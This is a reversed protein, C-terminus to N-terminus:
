GVLDWVVTRNAFHAQEIDFLTVTAGTDRDIVTHSGGGNNVIRYDARDGSFRAVDTDAGGYARDRGGSFIFVDSGDSGYLKDNGRGGNLRDSGEGGRLINRGANGTLVDDFDSGIVAAFSKFRDGAADGRSGTGANLRVTVASDSSDYNLTDYGRGGFMLDAGDLGTIMNGKANGTLRDVSSSGVIREFGSIQDGSAFGGSALGRSLNVRVGSASGSFDIVDVGAGGILTESSQGAMIHDNGTGGDITDAGGGGGVTDNGVGGFLHEAAGTGTWNDNNDVGNIMFTATATDDGNVQYTFSDTATAGVPLHEFMGNPNYTFTGNANMVVQAGSALTIVTGFNVVAGNMQTIVLPSDVDIDAGAGNNAFLDMPVPTGTESVSFADNQAVAADAVATVTITTTDSDQVTGDNVTVTLDVSGSANAAPMFSIGNLLLYADIAAGTGVLTVTGTGSGSLVVGIGNAGTLTGSSVALTVTLNTLLTDVDSVTVGTLAVATDEDTTFTPLDGVVPADNGPSIIIDLVNDVITVVGDTLDFSIADLLTETGDHLYKILGAAVDALTFTDGSLLQEAIQFIGDGDDLFLIGNALNETLTFVLDAPLGDDSVGLIAETLTAIAGEGVPLTGLDVLPVHDLIIEVTQTVTGLLGGILNFGTSVVGTLLDVVPDLLSVVGEIVGTSGTSNIDLVSGITDSVIDSVTVTLDGLFGVGTFSTVYGTDTLDISIVGNILGALLNVAQTIEVGEGIEIDTFTISDSGLLTVYDVVITVLEGNLGAM